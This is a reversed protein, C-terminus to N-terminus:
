SSEEDVVRGVRGRTTKPLYGRQRARAIRNAASSKTLQFHERVATTPPRGDHVAQAYVSAIERYHADGLDRGGRRPRDVLQSIQQLWSEFRENDERGAAESLLAAFRERSEQVLTAVPLRRLLVGDIRPLTLRPRDPAADELQPLQATAPDQDRWSTLKLGVPTPVGGQFRWYVTVAYPGNRRDPWLVTVGTPQTPVRGHHLNPAVEDLRESYVSLSM